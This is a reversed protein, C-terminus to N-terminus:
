STFPNLLKFDNYISIIYVGPSRGCSPKSSPSKGFEMTSGEKSLTLIGHWRTQCQETYSIGLLRTAAAEELSQYLNYRDRFFYIKNKCFYLSSIIHIFNENYNFSIKKFFSIQSVFSTKKRTNTSILDLLEDFEEENAPKPFELEMNEIIQAVNEDNGDDGAPM